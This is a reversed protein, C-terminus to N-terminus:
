NKRTGVIFAQTGGEWALPVVGLSKSWEFSDCYVNEQLFKEDITWVHEDTQNNPTIPLGNLPHLEEWPCQIVIYKKSYSKAEEVFAKPDPVHEIVNSTYVLDVKKSKDFAEVPIFRGYKVIAKRVALESLDSLFIKAKQFFIKLFVCSDGTACGLDLVSEINDFKRHDVNAFFGATFYQTQEGGGVKNWDYKFRFDWYEQSNSQYLTRGILSVVRALFYVYTKKITILLGQEKYIYLGRKIINKNIM